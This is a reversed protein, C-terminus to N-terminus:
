FHRRITMFNLFPCSFDLLNNVVSIITIYAQRIIANIECTENPISTQRVALVKSLVISLRVIYIM